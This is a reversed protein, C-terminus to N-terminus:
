VHYGSMRLFAESDQVIELADELQIDGRQVFEKLKQDILHMGLKGGTQIISNIQHTKSERILNRCANNMVLLETALVRGEGSSRPILRQIMVAQLVAALQVRIQQQQHPPFVDIIRDITQAASQTHLTGMVLHGTEAAILATSITEHDRMEGVLIVDPDQRLAARLSGAFSDTDKGVERQTLLSKANGHIYEIPDEITIIHRSLTQNVENVMAALSTSKGSGTPGAVIILGSALKISDKLVAPLKLEDFSPISENLARIAMCTGKLTRYANMRFRGLGDASYAFDIQGTEDLTKMMEESVLAAIWQRIEDNSFENDPHPTLKGSIRLVAPIGPAIHIDSVKMERAQRLLGEFMEM